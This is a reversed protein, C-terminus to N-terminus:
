SFISIQPLKNYDVYWMIVVVLVGVYSCVVASLVSLMGCCVVALMGVYSCVVASLVSLM